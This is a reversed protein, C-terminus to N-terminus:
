NKVNRKLLVRKKESNRATPLGFLLYTPNIQIYVSLCLSHATKLCDSSGIQTKPERTLLSCKDVVQLLHKQRMWPAFIIEKGLGSRFNNKVSWVWVGFAAPQPRNDVGVACFSKNLVPTWRSLGMRSQWQFLSKLVTVM